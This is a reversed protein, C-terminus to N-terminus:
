RIEQLEVFFETDFSKIFQAAKTEKVLFTDSFTKFIKIKESDAFYIRNNIINIKLDRNYQEILKQPEKCQPNKCYYVNNSFNNTGEADEEFGFVIYDNLLKIFFIKFGEGFSFTNGMKCFELGEECHKPDTNDTYILDVYDQPLFKDKYPAQAYEVHFREHMLARDPFSWKRKILDFRYMSVIKLPTTIKTPLEVRRVPQELYKNTRTIDFSKETSLVLPNSTLLIEGEMLDMEAVMSSDVSQPMDLSEIKKLKWNIVYIQNCFLFYLTSNKFDFKTLPLTRDQIKDKTCASTEGIKEETLDEKILSFKKSSASSSISIFNQAYSNFSICCFLIMLVQYKKLMKQIGQSFGNPNKLILRINTTKTYLCQLENM